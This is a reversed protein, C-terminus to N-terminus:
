WQYFRIIRVWQFKLINQGQDVASIEEYFKDFSIELEDNTFNNKKKKKKVIYVCKEEFLQPYYNEDKLLIMLYVSVIVAKKLCKIIIFIQISKVM